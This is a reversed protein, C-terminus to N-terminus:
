ISMRKSRLLNKNGRQDQTKFCMFLRPTRKIPVEKRQETKNQTSGAPLPPSEAGERPAPGSSVELQLRVAGAERSGQRRQRGARPM